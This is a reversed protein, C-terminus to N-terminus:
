RWPVGEKDGGPYSSTRWRTNKVCFVAYSISGHSSNLRTSKRDGDALLEAAVRLAFTTKGAGPTAVALFDEARRRLYEVLARRQWSRLSPGAELVPRPPM